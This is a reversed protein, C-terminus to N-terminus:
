PAVVRLVPSQEGEGFVFSRIVVRMPAEGGSIMVSMLGDCVNLVIRQACSACVSAGDIAFGYSPGSKVSVSLPMCGRYGVDIANFPPLNTTSATNLLAGETHEQSTAAAVLLAAAFLRM